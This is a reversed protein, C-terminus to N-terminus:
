EETILPITFVKGNNEFEVGHNTIKKVVIQNGIQDGAGVMEGNVIAVSRGGPDIVVGELRLNTISGTEQKVVATRMSPEMFPDRKGHSDYRFDDAFALSFLGTSFFAAIVFSILHRKM